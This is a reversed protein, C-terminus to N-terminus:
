KLVSEHIAFHKPVGYEMVLNLEGRILPLFYDLAYDMINNGAPNIYKAPLFKEKNAIESADASDITVTYPM